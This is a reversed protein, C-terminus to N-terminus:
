SNAIPENININLYKFLNHYKNDLREGIRCRFSFNYFPERKSNELCVRLLAGSKQCLFTSLLHFSHNLDIAIDYNFTSLKKLLAKKPLGLINTDKDTVFITGYHDAEDILTKYSERMVIVFKANHFNNQIVTLYSRAIGFDELKAPMLILITRAEVLVDFVNIVDKKVKLQSSFKLFPTIINELFKITM